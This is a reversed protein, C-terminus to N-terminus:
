PHEFASILLKTLCIIYYIKLHTQLETLLTGVTHELFTVVYCVLLLKQCRVHSMGKIQSSTTKQTHYIKANQTTSYECMIISRTNRKANITAGFYGFKRLALFVM